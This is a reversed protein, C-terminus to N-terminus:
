RRSLKRRQRYYASGIILLVAATIAVVSKGGTTGFLGTQPNPNEVKKVTVRQEESELDEHSAIPAEHEEIRLYEYVVLDLDYSRALEQVNIPIEVDITGKLYRGDGNGPFDNDTEVPTIGNITFDRKSSVEEGKITLPKGKAKDMIIADLTYTTDELFFGEVTVTDIVASDESDTMVKTKSDKDWAQTAIDIIHISQEVDNIDAHTAIKVQDFYCDEMVVITQGVLARSDFTFSLETFGSSEEPTFEKEATVPQGDVLLPEGQDEGTKVFLTGAMRYKKGPILKNYAVQDVITTEESVQAYHSGSEKETATTRIEPFYITQNEDGLDEHSALLHEGVFIKEYVVLTKGALGTADLTFSLPVEGNPNEPTFSLEATVQKGDITLPEEADKDMLLGKVTLERSVPMNEYSITDTITVEGEALIEKMGTTGDVASTGIKPFHISQNEDEIDAHIAVLIENQYLEEFVVVSEGALQSANLTFSLETVGDRSEPRFKEEVRIEKEDKDLLPKGTGQNMLLGKLVYQEGPTLNTYAVKDTITVEEDAYGYHDGTSDHIATTEIKPFHIMQDENDLEHHEAVKIGEPLQYLDVFAVVSKGALGTADLNYNLKVETEHRRATFKQSAAIRKDGIVVESGDEMNVFWGRAEYEVGKTLGYLTLTDSINTDAEALSTHGKTKADLAMSEIEIKDNTITGLDVVAKDQYIHFSFHQLNYNKNSECRLESLTYKGFPLAGLADDVKAMSDSEGKGFWLGTNIKMESQKIVTGSEAKKILGDNVNTQKSHLRNDAHSAFEGNKDTVVVHRESTTVNTLIWPVSLRESTGDAIKIMRFDGRVVQNKFTLANNDNDATVIKGEERIVFTRETGDSLLYSDTTSTERIAYTGYPLADNKTEATYAKAKENWHTTITKVDQGPEYEKGDVLVNHASQNKITFVIGELHTGHNNNGHDAGGLAESKDLEKDWKQVQVGGRIVPEKVTENRLDVFKNDELIVFTKKWDEDLKYGNSPKSEYIEYEGFPLCSQATAAYGNEDTTIIKCVTNVDFTKGDVAVKNASKNVISFEAGRLTADGQAYVRNLEKDIKQIQVGGRIVPEKVAENRIDVFKNDESIVVTKRWGEDLKYGPSPKSEYIEYKGYPLTNIATTAFGKDDTTIVKCIAEPAFTKGDVVVENVSKNIISFEASKLSANGQPTPTSLDKDVKQIQVGGRIVPEKVVENALDVLQNDESISFSKRWSTDVKYGPSAKSEYIEYRGHPLSNAGTTAFGKDDTKIVKCVSGVSITKGDVSVPNASKNIISFEADKLSANGQTIPKGTDKDVKQVQVGGRMVDNEATVTVTQTKGPTITFTNTNIRYGKGPSKEKVQLVFADVLEGTEPQITGVQVKGFIGANNKITTEKIPVGDKFLQFVAGDLSADGQPTDGTVADAKKVNIEGDIPRPPMPQAHVRIETSSSVPTLKHAIARQLDPDGSNYIYDQFANHSYSLSISHQGMSQWPLYIRFRTGVSWSQDSRYVTPDGERQVGVGGRVHVVFSTGLHPNGSTEFWESIKENANADYTANKDHSAIGFPNPIPDHNILWQVSGDNVIGPTTTVGTVVRVANITDCYAYGFPDPVGMQEYRQLLEGTHPGGYGWYLIKAVTSNSHYQGTYSEGTPFSLNPDVCFGVRQGPGPNLVLAKTRYTFGPYPREVWLGNNTITAPDVSRTLNGRLLSKVQALVNNSNSSEEDLKELESQYYAEISKTLEALQGTDRKNEDALDKADEESALGNDVFYQVKEEYTLEDFSKSEEELFPLDIDDMQEENNKSEEKNSSPLSSPTVDEKNTTEQENPLNNITPTPMQAFVSFATLLLFVVMFLAVLSYQKKKSM